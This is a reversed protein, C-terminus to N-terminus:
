GAKLALEARAHDLKKNTKRLQKALKANQKCLSRTASRYLNREMKVSANVANGAAKKVKKMIKM